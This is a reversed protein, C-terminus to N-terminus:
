GDDDRASAENGSERTTLAAQEDASPAAYGMRETRPPKRVLPLPPGSPARPATGPGLAPLLAEPRARLVRVKSGLHFEFEEVIHPDLPDLAAVDVRGSRVDRRVPVAALRECLGAPM